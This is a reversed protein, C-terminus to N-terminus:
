VDPIFDTDDLEYALAMLGMQRMDADVTDRVQVTTITVPLAPGTIVQRFETEVRALDNSTVSSKPTISLLRQGALAADQVKYSDNNVELTPM